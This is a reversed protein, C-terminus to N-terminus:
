FRLHGVMQMVTSNVVGILAQPYIGLLFMLGITPVALLREQVSLDPLSAWQANLPGNFV